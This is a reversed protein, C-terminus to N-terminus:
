AIRYPPELSGWVDQTQWWFNLHRKALATSDADNGLAAQYVVGSDKFENLLVYGDEVKSGAIEGADGKAGSSSLIIVVLSRDEHPM